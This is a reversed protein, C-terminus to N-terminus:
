VFRFIDKSESKVLEIGKGTLLKEFIDTVLIETPYHGADIVCIGAAGADLMEHYKMDATLMVDAGRLVATPISDSCAGSGIAIRQVKREPVGCLRVAPTNLKSKVLEAFEQLTVPSKLTGIRGLGDDELPQTDNLGLLKALQSNIGGEAIDCNTHAAYIAIDNKIASLLMRGESTDDTIRKVGGFMIPHHSLILEAGTSVAEAVVAETIDLTLLAKKIDRNENGVLLGVNDWECALEKPFANEVIEIIESLLM